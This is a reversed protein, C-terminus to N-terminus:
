TDAAVRRYTKIYEETIRDWDFRNEVIERAQGSMKTRLVEDEVLTALRDALRDSDKPDVLYGNIGDDIQGAIGGVDSAVLPTKTALAEKAAISHGEEMSPLVSLDCGVFLKKVQEHPIFGPMVVNNDLGRKVIMTEIKNVYPEDYQYGALVFKVANINRENVIDDAAEILYEIGKHETITGAFLVLVDDSDYDTDLIKNINARDCEIPFADTDIGSPIVDISAESIDDWAALINRKLRDNLVVTRDAREILYRDPSVYRLLWFPPDVYESLNLRHEATRLSYIISSRLSPKVTILVNISFPLHANIVDYEMDSLARTAQRAFNVRDILFATAKLPGSMQKHVTTENSENIGTGLSLRYFSIRDRTEHPPTGSWQRELITVKHGKKVTRRAIEYVTSPVSGEGPLVREHGDYFHVVHM